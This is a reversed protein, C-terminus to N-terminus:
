PNTSTGSNNLPSKTGPITPLNQSNPTPAVPIGGPNQAPPTSPITNQQVVGPGGPVTSGMRLAPLAYLFFILALMIVVILGVIVLTNSTDGKEEPSQGVVAM